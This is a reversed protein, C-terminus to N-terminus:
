FLLASSICFNMLSIADTELRGSCSWKKLTDSSTARNVMTSAKPLLIKAKSPLRQGPDSVPGRQGGQGGGDASRRSSTNPRRAHPRSPDSPEQYWSQRREYFPRNSPATPANSQFPVTTICVGPPVM